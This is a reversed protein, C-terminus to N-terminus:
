RRIVDVKLRVLEAALAPLQDIKAEASRLEIDINKGEVYGLERLGQRFADLRLAVASAPAGGLWGIRSVKRPQQAEAIAGVALLIVVFLISSVGAKKMASVMQASRPLYCLFTGNVVSPSLYEDLPFVLNKAQSQVSRRM